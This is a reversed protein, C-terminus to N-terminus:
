SEGGSILCMFQKADVEALRTYFVIAKNGLIEVTMPYDRLNALFGTDHGNLYEKLKAMRIKDTELSDITVSVRESDM